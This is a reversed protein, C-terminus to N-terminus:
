VGLKKMHAEHEIRSVFVPVYDGSGRYALVGARKSKYKICNWAENSHVDCLFVEGDRLEPHEKDSM